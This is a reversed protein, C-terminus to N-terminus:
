EVRVKCVRWMLKEQIDRKAVDLRMYYCPMGDAFDFPNGPSFEIGGQYHGRDCFHPRCRVWCLLVDVLLFEWCGPNDKVECWEVADINNALWYEQAERSQKLIDMPM